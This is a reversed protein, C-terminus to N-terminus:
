PGSVAAITLTSTYAGAFSNQPVSVRITPTVTFTGLGSLAAANFFRVATPATAAAPVAVPYAVSNVPNTCSGGACVATVGTVTSATTALTKATAGGTSLTTSTITLRWGVGTGRTDAATLTVTYTPTQDGLNLNASFSAAAPASVSLSGAAVARDAAALLMLLAGLAAKATHAAAPL